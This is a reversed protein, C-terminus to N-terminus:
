SSTWIGIKPRSLNEVLLKLFSDPRSPHSTTPSSQFQLVMVSNAVAANSIQEVLLIGGFSGGTRSRAALREHISQHERDRQRKSRIDFGVALRTMLRSIHTTREALIM